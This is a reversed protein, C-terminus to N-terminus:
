KKQYFSPENNPRTKFRRYSWMYQEPMERVLREIERNMRRADEVPDEGPFNEWAPHFRVECGRGNPLIHTTCPVVAANTSEAIRSLATVTAAPVGFFPVFVSSREGMDQDPLYYFQMGDKISRLLPRMGALHMVMFAGFRGRRRFLYELLPSRSRRYMSVIKRDMSVRIGGIDLGIFHPALLIANRGGALVADLHHEDRLTVVRRLRWAPAFWAVGLNLVAIGAARFHRRVLRRHEDPGLEPFCLEINRSAIRRAPSSFLSFFWGLANGLAWLVPQPLWSIIIVCLLILLAYWNRPHLFTRLTVDTM